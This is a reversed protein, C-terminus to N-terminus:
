WSRMRGSMDQWARRTGGAGMAQAFGRCATWCAQCGAGAQALRLKELLEALGASRINGVSRDIKEICPSVNGVHDINFSQEGAHCEPLAGGSLFTDIGLAYDRFFRAHPYRQWLMHLEAGIGPAPLSDAPAPSGTVQPLGLAEPTRGGRRYGGTSLLTIQHGVGAAASQALLAPLESQNDGMVVTMVHVQKGGQPAARRLLEVARWARETAGPVGRKRDHRWADAYDISVCAHPLGAAFLAQAKPETVFWGNTFLTPVHRQSLAQVIEVLDPRVLPEGGEISVLFCGLESLEDAVRRYEAVTLEQSRPAPHPWFDCFSCQMNCRNTVQILVQFPRQRLVGAAFRADNAVQRLSPFRRM